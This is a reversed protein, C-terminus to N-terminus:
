LLPGIIQFLLRCRVIAREVVSASSSLNTVQTLDTRWVILIIQFVHCPTFMNSSLREVITIHVFLMLGPFELVLCQLVVELFSVDLYMMYRRDEVHSVDEGLVQWDTLHTLDTRWM